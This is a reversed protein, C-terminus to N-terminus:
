PRSAFEDPHDQIYAELDAIEETTLVKPQLKFLNIEDNDLVHSGDMFVLHGHGCLSRMAVTYAFHVNSAMRMVQFELGAPGFLVKWNLTASACRM